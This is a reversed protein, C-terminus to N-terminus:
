RLASISADPQLTRRPRTCMAPARRSPGADEVGCDDDDCGPNLTRRLSDVGRIEAWGAKSRAARGINLSTGCRKIDVFGQQGRHDIGLAAGINETTGDQGVYRFARHDFGKLCYLLSGSRMKSTWAGFRGYSVDVGHEVKGSTRDRFDFTKSLYGRLEKALAATGRRPLYLPVHTHAGRGPVRERVWVFTPVIERRWLWKSMYDFVDGQIDAWREESFGDMLRWALTLEVVLPRNQEKTEAFAAANTM